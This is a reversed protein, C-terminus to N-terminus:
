RCKKGTNVWQGSQANCQNVTGKVCWTEGNGVPRGDMNCSPGPAPPEVKQKQAQAQLVPNGTSAALALPSAAILAFLTFLTRM